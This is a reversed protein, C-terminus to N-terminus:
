SKPERKQAEAKKPSAQRRRAATREAKLQKELRNITDTKARESKISISIAESVTSGSLAAMMEMLRVQDEPLRIKVLGAEAKASLEAKLREIEANATRLQAQLAEIEKQQTEIHRKNRPAKPHKERFRRSREAGTLPKEGILPRGM